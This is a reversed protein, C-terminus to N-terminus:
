GKVAARFDDLTNAELAADFWRSLLDMDETAQIAEALDSPVPGKGRKELARLLAARRGKLEGENQWELVQQSVRVNWGELAQKWQKWVDSLEAFLLADVAYDLRVRPDPELDALRKWEEITAPEGSGRMLAVWPLV